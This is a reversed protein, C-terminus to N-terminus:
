AVVQPADVSLEACARFVQAAALPMDAPPVDLVIHGDWSTRAMLVHRLAARARAVGESSCGRAESLALGLISRFITATTITGRHGSRPAGGESFLEWVAGASRRIAEKMQTEHEGADWRELLKLLADPDALEGGPSAVPPSPVTAASDVPGRGLRELLAEAGALELVAARGRAIEAGADPPWGNAEALRHARRGTRDILERLRAPAPRASRLRPRYDLGTVVPLGALAILLWDRGVRALSDTRVDFRGDALYGTSMDGFTPRLMEVLVFGLARAGAELAVGTAATAAVFYLQYYARLPYPGVGHRHVLWRDMGEVEERYDVVNPLAGSPLQLEALRGVIRRAMARAQPRDALNDIVALLYGGWSAYPTRLERVYDGYRLDGDELLHTATYAIADDIYGSVRAAVDANPASALLAAMFAGIWLEYNVASGQLRTKDDGPYLHWITLGDWALRGVHGEFFDLARRAALVYRPDPRRRHALLLALGPVATDITYQRDPFETQEVGGSAYIMSPVNARAYQWGGSDDQRAVIEELSAEIIREIRASTAADETRELLELLAIV